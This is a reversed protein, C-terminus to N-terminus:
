KSNNLLQNNFSSFSIKKESTKDPDNRKIGRYDYENFVVMEFPITETNDM